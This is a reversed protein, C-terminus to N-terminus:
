KYLYGLNNFIHFLSLARTHFASPPSHHHIRQLLRLWLVQFGLLRRQLPLRQLQHRPLWLRPPIPPINRQRSHVPPLLRTPIATRRNHHKRHLLVRNDRNNSNNHCMQNTSSLLRRRLQPHIPLQFCITTTVLTLLLGRRISVVELSLLPLRPPRQLIDVRVQLQTHHHRAWESPVRCKSVTHRWEM